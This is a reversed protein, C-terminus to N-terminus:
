KVAGMYSRTEAQDKRWDAIQAPKNNGAYPVYLPHRPSGDTNLGLCELSGSRFMTGLLTHPNNKVWSNAPKGWGAVIYLPTEYEVVDRLFAENRPGVIDIDQNRARQLEKPDTARYAFVNLVILKRAQWLDAFGACRRITPDDTAGDATSPNCLVFVVTEDRSLNGTLVRDLRYRYRGCDSLVAAKHRYIVEGEETRM